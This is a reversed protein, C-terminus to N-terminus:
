TTVWTTRMEHTAGRAACECSTTPIYESAEAAPSSGLAAQELKINIVLTRMELSPIWGCPDPFLNSTPFHDFVGSLHPHREERMWEGARLLGRTDPRSLVEPDANPSLVHSASPGNRNFGVHITVPMNMEQAAALLHRRRRDTSRGSSFV